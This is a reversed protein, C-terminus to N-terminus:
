GWVHVESPCVCTRWPLRLPLRRHIIWICLHLYFWLQFEPASHSLFLVWFRGLLQLDFGGSWSPLSWAWPVYLLVTLAGVFSFVTTRLVTSMPPLFVCSCFWILTQAAGVAPGSVMGTISPMRPLCPLSVGLSPFYVSLLSELFFM